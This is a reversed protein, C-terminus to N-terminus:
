YIYKTWGPFYMSAQEEEEGRGQDDEDPEEDPEEYRDANTGLERRRYKREREAAAEEAAEEGGEQDLSTGPDFGQRQAIVQQLYEPPVRMGRASGRARAAKGHGGRSGRGRPKGRGRSRAADM